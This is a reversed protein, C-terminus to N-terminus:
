SRKQKKFLQESFAVWIPVSLCLETFFMTSLWQHDAMCSWGEDSKVSQNLDPGASVAAGRHKRLKLM